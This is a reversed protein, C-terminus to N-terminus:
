FRRVECGACVQGKDSPIHTKELKWGSFKVVYNMCGSLRAGLEIFHIPLLHEVRDDAAGPAQEVKSSLKAHFFEQQGAGSCNVALLGCFDGIDRLVVKPGGIWKQRTRSVTLALSHGFM